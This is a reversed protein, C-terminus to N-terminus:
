LAVVRYNQLIRAVHMPVPKLDASMAAERNEIWHSVLGMVAQKLAQPVAAASAYGCTMHIEIGGVDRVAIPAAVGRNLVLRPEIEDQVLYTQTFDTSTGAENLVKVVAASVPALPLVIFPSYGYFASLAGERAGDWWIEKAQQPWQDMVLAWVQSMLKRGTAQEVMQRAAVIWNTILTDESTDDVKAYAKAEALTVPESTPATILRLM